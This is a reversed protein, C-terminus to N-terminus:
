QELFEPENSLALAERIDIPNGFSKASLFCDKFGLKILSDKLVKAEAYTKYNGISFKNYGDTNFESLNMLSDSTLFFDKFAGIQVSYIVKENSISNIETNGKSNNISNFYGEKYIILSDNNILSLNNDDMMNNTVGNNKYIIMFAFAGLFLLMLIGFINRQIKLSSM